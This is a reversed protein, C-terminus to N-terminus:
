WPVTGNQPTPVNSTFRLVHLKLTYNGKMDQDTVIAPRGGLNMVVGTTASPLLARVEQSIDVMRGGCDNLYVRLKENNVADGRMVIDVCGDGNLDTPYAHRYGGSVTMDSVMSNGFFDATKDVFFLKGMNILIQTQSGTKFQGKADLGYQHNQIILDPRKDGNMDAVSIQKVALNYCNWATANAAQDWCNRKSFAGNPLAQATANAFSGKADQKLVYSGHKNFGLKESTEHYSFSTGLILEDIGDGDLDAGAAATVPMDADPYWGNLDTSPLRLWAPLREQLSEFQGSADIRALVSPGNIFDGVFAAKYPTDALKVSAVGHAWNWTGARATNPLQRKVYGDGQSLIAYTPEAPNGHSDPGNGGLIADAKGDGNLDGLSNMTEAFYMAPMGGEVLADANEFQRGTWRLLMQPGRAYIEKKFLDYSWDPYVMGFVILDAGTQIQKIQEVSQMWPIHTKGVAAFTFADPIVEVYDALSGNPKGPLFDTVKAPVYAMGHQIENLVQGKNEPSESFGILVQARTLRGSEINSVHFDLGQAEPARKLVNKYLRTVFQRNDLSGYRVSFEPSNIFNQSVVSLSLGALEIAGIQYGLGGQDPERDFAARYLRYIQGAAGETDLAVSTDNFRIRQVGPAIHSAIGSIKDTVVYQGNESTIAYDAYRGAFFDANVVVSTSFQRSVNQNESGIDTSDGCGTLITALTAAVLYIPSRLTIRM